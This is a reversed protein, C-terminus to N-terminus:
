AVAELHQNAADRAAPSDADLVAALKGELALLGPLAENRELLGELSQAFFELRHTAAQRQADLQLAFFWRYAFVGLAVCAVVAVAYSLAARLPLWHTAPERPALLAHADQVM